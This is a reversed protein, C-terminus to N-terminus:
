NRRALSWVSPGIDAKGGFASLDAFTESHGSLALLPCECQLLFRLGTASSRGAGSRCLHRGSPVRRAPERRLEDIRGSRRLRAVSLNGSDQPSRGTPSNFVATSFSLAAESLWPTPGSTWLAQSPRISRAPRAPM